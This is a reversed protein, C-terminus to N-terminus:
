LSINFGITSIKPMPADPSEPDWGPWKTFTLLNRGSYFIRIDNVKLTRCVSAPLQYALSVDQVRVFSKPKYIKLGGGFAVTRTTLKPYDNIPNDPTWYPINVANNKDYTAFGSHLAQDFEGIQGLDARIFISATFNKLFTFDNKFGFQYRPKTYGIFQKDTLAEYIGNKDVDQAKYDGPTEGYKAAGTAENQQWIGTVKYNWVRDISQGPFWENTYDPIERTVTKGDVTVTEYDGFLKKIKNRNFSFVLNSRWSFDKKNVNVTNVTFEFGKNGLEGLNTTVDTFGTIPPLQRNMLLDNTTIDYYEATVSVRNKFLGLDIGFNLSQTREWVLNSNALTSNYVGVRVNSGDYYYNPNLQALASYAGISRNGNVGWSARAKLQSIWDIQFFKEESIKWALAVAPFTARPNKLGFASYGDRRISATLLYKGMLEYNVRAMAADGTVKTDNIGIGPKTGFQLGNFGLNQNPVFTENSMTSSWNQNEEASYLLTLDVNHIGVKKQWHVLHDLIWEFSSADQRTGYGQSHTEGGVITTSPWFNYDKSFSYRPQYSIKYEIGLPLKINAYLSAFLGNEKALRDQGYYNILPNAVATYSNPYWNLTGDANYMSGYPSNQYMLDLNATVVSQDRSSFQSNIGINLWDTVKLDLNLRSRFTKFKDGTIVGENNQYGMSWYYNVADTAGSISIDYNQRIGPKIVEDYWNVQKGAKYNDMEVQFFGNRSLYENTNDAQPNASANRWQDLTVGSPLKTPDNYYYGPTDSHMERLFDGRFQLYGAGDYPKFDHTPTAIGVSSSFNITPKGTKGKKTTVLIVGSAASAGYVAASSADKLIDITKIDAPNIESINGNFIAGDIVVMPETSANLSKQGRIEMSSGGEATTGQTSYFGAITGTLMDALQTMPQNKFNDGDVRVVAGTLDSKKRTGYGIAVVEELGVTEEELIIKVSAKGTIAVEQTKMGIFSFVLINANPPVSLKFNGDNDTITGITTGKVVVSVGPLILGKSDKVAGSIEKKQEANTESKTASPLEKTQDTLIVIQRDFIRYQVSAQEAVQQMISDIPAQDTQITIKQDKSFVEDQYIFNFETLDEIQKIVDQVPVNKLNLSLKTTQSLSTGYSSVFLLFSFFVTLKMKRLILNSGNNFFHAEILKKKM